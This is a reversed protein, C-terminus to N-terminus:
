EEDKFRKIGRAPFARSFNGQDMQLARAVEGQSAGAKLLLLILLRKISDLEKAIPDQDNGKKTM